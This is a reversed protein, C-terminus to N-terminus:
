INPPDQTSIAKQCAGTNSTTQLFNGTLKEQFLTNNKLSAYM